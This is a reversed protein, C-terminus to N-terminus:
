SAVEMAGGEGSLGTCKFKKHLSRQCVAQGSLNAHLKLTALLAASAQLIFQRTRGDVVKGRLLADRLDNATCRQLRKCEIVRGFTRSAVSCGLVAPFRIKMAL